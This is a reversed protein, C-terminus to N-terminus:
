EEEEADEPKHEELWALVVKIRASLEALWAHLFAFLGSITIDDFVTFEDLM